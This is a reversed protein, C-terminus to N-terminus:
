HMSGSLQTRLRDHATIVDRVRQSGSEREIVLDVPRPLGRVVDLFSPWDVAGEGVPVEQGWTGPTSTPRADKVHVQAVYPALRQLATVPDGKDYLIMNAPDFNVGLDPRDVEELVGVLTEATEQGTELALSISRQAFADVLTRLRHVIVEREPADPEHPIFGAHFSVLTIPSDEALDAVRLMLELTQPWTADPLLGGTRRISDLSSYDEGISEMMGSLIRIGADRLYMFTDAWDRPHTILPNLALQIAELGTDRVLDVLLKPGIPQLSWSCVGISIPRGPAGPPPSDAPSHAM